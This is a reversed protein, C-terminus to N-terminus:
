MLSVLAFLDNQLGLRDRAPLSMNEIAPILRDLMDSSYRVRYVGITEPNFKIWEDSKVGTLTFEASKTKLVETYITKTPDSSGVVNIPVM